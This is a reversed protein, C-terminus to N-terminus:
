AQRVKAKGKDLSRVRREARKVWREMIEAGILAAPTGQQAFADAYQMGIEIREVLEERTLTDMARDYYKTKPEAPEAQAAAAKAPAAKAPAAKAPAAKAPAAKAPAPKAPAAKAPAPKAPAPAAPAAFADQTQDDRGDARYDPVVDFTNGDQTVIGQALLAAVAPKLTELALGSRSLLDTGTLPGETGLINVVNQENSIIETAM